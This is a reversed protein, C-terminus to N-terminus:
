SELMEKQTTPNGLAGHANALNTLTIAVSYHEKRYHQENIKLAQELMEKTALDGLVGHAIALNTLTRAVEYHEKGYHQENIELARELM